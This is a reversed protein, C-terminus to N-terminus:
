NQSVTIQASQIMTGKYNIQPKIVGTIIRKGVDLNEDTIFTAVVKMGEKYDEGLYDIIEYGTAQLNNTIQIISKNLQKFGKINPDMKSMTVKMFSLRDAVIKVIEHQESIDADTSPVSENEKALTYLSIIKQLDNEQNILSNQFIEQYKNISDKYTNCLELLNDSNKLLKITKIHNIVEVLLLFIIFVIMAYNLNSASSNAGGNSEVSSISESKFVAQDVSPSSEVSTVPESNSTDKDVNSNQEVLSKPESSLTDQDVNSNQEVLSKLESSSTDQDINSNQEVLSKPESSLTDQDVNSNQEVLSKLESSSTDQDINSNQEVLSKPESSLTDQDVNSNQEVLSKLESSSTDQDINSNQEVLSKPESSSTDQDVNSGLNSSSIENSIGEEPASKQKEIRSSNAISMKVDSTSVGIKKTATIKVNTTKVIETSDRIEITDTTPTDTVEAYINVGCLMLGFLLFNKSKYM